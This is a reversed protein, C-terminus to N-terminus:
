FILLFYFNFSYNLFFLFLAFHFVFYISLSHYYSYYKEIVKTTPTRVIHTGGIQRSLFDEINRPLDRSRSHVGHPRNLSLNPRVEAKVQKWPGFKGGFGVAEQWNGPNLGSSM